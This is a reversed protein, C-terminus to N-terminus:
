RRCLIWDLWDNISDKISELMIGKYKRSNSYFLWHYFYEYILNFIDGFLRLSAWKLGGSAVWILHHIVEHFLVRVKLKSLWIVGNYYLGQTTSTKLGEYYLSSRNTLKLYEKWSTTVKPFIM